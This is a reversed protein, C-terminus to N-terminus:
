KGNTEFANMLNIEVGKKEHNERAIYFRFKGFENWVNIKFFLFKESESIDKYTKIELSNLVREFHELFKDFFSIIEQQFPKKFSELLYEKESSDEQEHDYKRIIQQIEDIKENEPEKEMMNEVITVVDHIEDHKGYNNDVYPFYKKMMEPEITVECRVSPGRQNYNFLFKVM